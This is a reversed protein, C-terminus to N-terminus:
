RMLACTLSTVIQVDVARQCLQKEQRNVKLHKKLKIYFIYKIQARQINYQVYIYVSRHIQIYHFDDTRGFSPFYNKKYEHLICAYYICIIIIFTKRYTYASQYLNELGYSRQSYVAYLILHVEPFFNSNLNEIKCFFFSAVYSYELQM